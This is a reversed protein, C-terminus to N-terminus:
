CSVTCDIHPQAKLMKTIAEAAARRGALNWHTDFPHYLLNGERALDRFLPLLNVFLLEQEKSIAGLAESNNMEFQLQQPIKSLFRSGSQPDFLSGYVEIKTPIFVIVPTMTHQRALVKFEGIVSRIHKWVESDLLQMSTAPQNWYTFYMPVRHGNLRINGLDPHTEQSVVERGMSVEQRDVSRAFFRKVAHRIAHFTDHFAHWYRILFNKRGIVFSYYDGGSGGKQWRMYQRTDEADNGSFFALIVYRAKTEVGYRKFIELYQPPGYWARGLNLTSLGSQQKLLESLTSEDSEGFEIYSDGLVVVDLPPTSSNTRFGNDTYTARYAIPAVEVGFVPSYVDGRFEMANVIRKGERPVFVLTPDSVYEAAQAYYRISQLNIAKLLDPFFEFLAFLVFTTVFLLYLSFLILKITRRRRAM